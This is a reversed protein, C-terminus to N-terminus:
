PSWGRSSHSSIIPHLLLIFKLPCSLSHLGQNKEPTSEIIRSMMESNWSRSLRDTLVPSTPLHRM